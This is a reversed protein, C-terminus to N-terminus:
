IRGCGLRQMSNLEERWYAEDVRVLSLNRELLAAEFTSRDVGAWRVAAPMTLKGAGYLRCAIELKAEEESLGAATLMEDTIMLPM